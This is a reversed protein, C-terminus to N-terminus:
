GLLRDTLECNRTFNTRGEANESAVLETQASGFEAEAQGGRRQEFVIWM